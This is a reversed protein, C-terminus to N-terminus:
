SPANEPAPRGCCRFVEAVVRALSVPKPLFVTAATARERDEPLVNATFAIIPVASTEPDGRLIELIEWGTPTRRFLETIVVAPRVVRALAAGARPERATVVRFGYHTLLVTCIEISDEDDDILLVVPDADMGCRTM